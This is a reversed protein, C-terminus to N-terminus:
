QEGHQDHTSGHGRRGRRRGAPVGLQMDGHEFGKPDGRGRVREGLEAIVHALQAGVAEQLALTAAIRIPEGGLADFDGREEDQELLPDAAREGVREKM